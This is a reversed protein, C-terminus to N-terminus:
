LKVVILCGQAKQTSVYNTRDMQFWFFFITPRSPNSGGVWPKPFRKGPPAM